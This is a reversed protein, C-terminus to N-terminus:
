PSAVSATAARRPRPTPGPSSAAGAGQASGPPGGLSQQEAKWRMATYIRTRGSPHDYMLWEEIPGPDLKRYEGLKLAVQAFGDPQRAANLGFVDAEYENARIYSRIVPALVFTYASIILVALPLGAPDGAARVGWRVGWREGWRARAREFSWRLLAFGAVILAGFFLISEWVHNLVYHGIEHGMVAEIEPLSARRLLNDNLTIRETGLLGSVNASIRTTQRSADMVYVHGAEIGNARAMRLIPERIREDTLPTYTNFLPAIFVPAILSTLLLFAVTVASGWLWWTRPLRRVVGYLLVVLVGGLVLGVLLGKLQDGLWAGFSQTALGYRHERFFGQYVTLPFFLVTTVVLYQAWYLATQLPRSRTLREAADRMRASWGGALLLLAVAAGLLFNWLDLWYGGEFYADSRARKDAPVSALYARTAAGPDTVTDSPQAARPGADGAAGCPATRDVADAPPIDQSGVIGVFALIAAIALLGPPHRGARTTM